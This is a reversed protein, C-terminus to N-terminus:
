LWGMGELRPAGCAMVASLWNRGGALTPPLQFLWGVAWGAQFGDTWAPYVAGIAGTPM